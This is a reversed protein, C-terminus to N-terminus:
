DHGCLFVVTQSMGFNIRFKVTVGILWPMMEFQLLIIPLM